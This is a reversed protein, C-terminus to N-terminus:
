WCLISALSVVWIDVLLVERYFWCLVGAALTEYRDSFKVTDVLLFMGSQFLVFLIGGGVLLKLLSVGLDKVPFLLLFWVLLGGSWDPFWSSCFYDLMWGLLLGSRVFEFLM